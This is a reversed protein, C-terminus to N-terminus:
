KIFLNIFNNILTYDINISKHKLKVKDLDVLQTITLLFSHVNVSSILQLFTQIVWQIIYM